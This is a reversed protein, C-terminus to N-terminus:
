GFLAQDDDLRLTAGEDHAAVLGLRFGDKFLGAAAARLESRALTRAVRHVGAAMGYPQLGNLNVTGPNVSGPNVNGPNVNGPNVNGPNANGPNVNGPNM